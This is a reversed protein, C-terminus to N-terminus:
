RFIEPLNKIRYEVYTTTDDGMVVGAIGSEFFFPRILDLGEPLTLTFVFRGESDFVDIESREISIWRFAALYGKPMVELDELAVLHDPCIDIM